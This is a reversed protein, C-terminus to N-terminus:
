TAEPYGMANSSCSKWLRGLELWSPKFSFQKWAVAVAVWGARYVKSVDAEMKCIELVHSAGPQRSETSAGKSNFFSATACRNEKAPLDTWFNEKAAIKITNRTGLYQRLLGDL